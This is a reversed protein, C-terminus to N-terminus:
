DNLLDKLYLDHHSITSYTTANKDNRHTIPLLLEYDFLDSKFTVEVAQVLLNNYFIFIYVKKFVKYNSKLM